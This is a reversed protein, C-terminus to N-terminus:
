KAVYAGTRHLINEALELREVAHDDDISIVMEILSEAVAIAAAMSPFFSTSEHSFLLCHDAKLAIPAVTSDTLVILKAGNESAATAVRLAEASYPAFSVVLVADKATIARLEMDLSGESGRILTVTSRFLRYLYHLLFSISFAARFGAIHVHRAKTLARAAALMKDASKPESADLNARQADFLEAVLKDSNSRRVINKAKFAYAKPDGALREVFLARLEAWGNFGLYQALRVFTSPQVRAKAALARMTSVAVEGPNDLLYAAGAQFQPRMDNFRARITTELDLYSQINLDSQSM